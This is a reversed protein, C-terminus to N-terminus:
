KLFRLDTVVADRWTKGALYQPMLNYDLPGDGYEVEVQLVLVSPQFFLNQIRYRINGTLHEDNTM